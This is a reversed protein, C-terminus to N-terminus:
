QPKQWEAATAEKNQEMGAKFAEFDLMAGIRRREAEFRNPARKGAPKKRVSAKSQSPKAAVNRFKSMSKPM